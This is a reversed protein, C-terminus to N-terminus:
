QYCTGITKNTCRYFSPQHTIRIIIFHVRNVRHITYPFLSIEWLIVSNKMYCANSMYVRLRFHSWQIILHITVQCNLYGLVSLFASHLLKHKHRRSNYIMCTLRQLTIHSLTVCFRIRVVKITVRFQLCLLSQFPQLAICKLHCYDTRRHNITGAIFAIQWSQSPQCLLSRNERSPM